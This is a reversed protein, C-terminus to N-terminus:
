FPPGSMAMVQQRQIGCTLPTSILCGSRSFACPFNRTTKYFMKSTSKSGFLKNQNQHKQIVQQQSAGPFAIVFLFLRAPEKQIPETSARPRENKKLRGNVKKYFTKPM